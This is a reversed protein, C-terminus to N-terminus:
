FVKYIDLFGSNGISGHISRDTRLQGLIGKLGTFEEQCAMEKGIYDWCM